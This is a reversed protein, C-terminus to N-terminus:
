HHCSTSPQLSDVQPYDNLSKCKDYIFEPDIDVGCEWEITDFVVRVKKFMDIDKIRQFIGTSIFPKMDINGNVGDEFTVFLTYDNGPVVEKVSPYM